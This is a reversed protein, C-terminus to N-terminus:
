RGKSVQMAQEDRQLRILLSHYNHVQGQGEEPLANYVRQMAEPAKGQWQEHSFIAPLAFHDSMAQLLPTVQGNEDLFDQPELPENRAQLYAVLEAGKGCEVGRQLWTKGNANVELLDAKSLASNGQKEMGRVLADFDHWARPQDLPATYGEGEFMLTRNNYSTPLPMEYAETYKRLVEVCARHEAGGGNMSLSDQAIEDPTAEGGMISHGKLQPSAGYDLLIGAIEAHGIAAALHLASKNGINLHDINQSRSALFRVMPVYKKRVAEFLPSTNADEYRNIGRDYLMTAMPVNRQKVAQYLAPGVGEVVGNIDAGADLADGAAAVDGREVAALFLKDAETQIRKSM